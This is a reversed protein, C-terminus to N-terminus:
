RNRGSPPLTRQGPRGHKGDPTRAPPTQPRHSARGKPEAREATRANSPHGTGGTRHTLPRYMGTRSDAATGKRGSAIAAHQRLSVDGAGSALPRLTRGPTTHSRPEAREAIPDAARPARRGPAPLVHSAPQRNAGARARDRAM